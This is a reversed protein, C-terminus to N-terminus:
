VSSHTFFVLLFADRWTDRESPLHSIFLYIFFHIFLLVSGQGGHCLREWDRCATMVWIAQVDSGDMVRFPVEIVQHCGKFDVASLSVKM